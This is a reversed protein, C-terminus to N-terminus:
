GPPPRRGRKPAGEDDVGIDYDEFDSTLEATLKEERLRELRRWAPEGGKQGGRRRAQDMDRIVRDVDEVPELLDDDGDDDFDDSEPKESMVRTITAIQQFRARAPGTARFKNRNADVHM